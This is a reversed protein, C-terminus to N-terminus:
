APHTASHFDTTLFHPPLNGLISLFIPKGDAIEQAEAPTPKWAVVVVPSGEVSGREITGRYADVTRVQVEDMDPPATFKCNVEQFWVPRM